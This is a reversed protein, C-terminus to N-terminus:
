SFLGGDGGTILYHVQPSNITFSDVQVIETTSGFLRFGPNGQTLASDTTSLTWTTGEANGDQWTRAKFSTGQILVHLWYNANNSLTNAVNLVTTTTSAVIKRLSLQNQVFGIYYLNNLDKWRAIFFVADNSAASVSFRVKMDMDYGAIGGLVIHASSGSWTTAKGRNSAISFTANADKAIWTEGDSATGWGSQDARTFTDTALVYADTTTLDFTQFSYVSVTDTTSHSTGRYGIAGGAYTTDTTTLNWTGPEASGDLWFRLSLTTGQVRFRLWFKQNASVTNATSVLTTGVDAVRIKIALVNNLDQGAYYFNGNSEYRLIQHSAATPDSLSTQVLIEADTRSVSGLLLNTGNGNTNSVQGAHGSVQVTGAQQSVITWNQLSSATGWSGTVNARQFTDELITAM